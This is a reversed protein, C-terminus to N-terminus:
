KAAWVGNKACFFLGSVHTAIGGSFSTGSNITDQAATVPNNAIAPYIALTNAGNNYLSVATGQLCPPLAVGTSAAATDIELLRVGAPLQTATAQTTGAATIGYQYSYNQGGALALLWSGDVSQFGPLPVNGVAFAAGVAAAFFAGVLMNLTAKLM